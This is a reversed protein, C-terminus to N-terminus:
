AWRLTFLMARQEDPINVTMGLVECEHENCWDMLKNFNTNWYAIDVLVALYQFRDDFDNDLITFLRDKFDAMIDTM